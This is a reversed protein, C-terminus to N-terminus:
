GHFYFVWQDLVMLLFLLALYATSYKYLKRAAPKPSEGSQWVRLALLLFYLGLLVSGAFYFLGLERIVSPIITVVFMMISYLIIQRRTELEGWAVPLMPIGARYYDKEVMLMLAWTHPPTWLLIIAFLYLALLSIDNTVAAWGVLPPIAGAVGGVVINQPTARKLLVTYIYAYYIYGVLSLTASLPNVWVALIAMSLVGMGVAYVLAYLPAIRGTPLPRRSTRGMVKDTERDIFSNLASAGAASFAGGLITFFLIDGRPMGRAAIFMSALTTTLLLGVIWPKSLLLYDKWTGVPGDGLSRIKACWDVTQVATVQAVVQDSVGLGIAGVGVHVVLAQVVVLGWVGTAVALHVLNLLAPSGSLVSAGGAVMQIVFLFCTMGAIRAPSGGAQRAQLFVIVLYVGVLLSVVRHAADIWALSTGPLFAYSCFPWAPCSGTAGARVVYNGTLILFLVAVVAGGSLAAVRRLGPARGPQLRFPRAYLEIVVVVTLVAGLLMLAIAFHATAVAQSDLLAALGGVLDQAFLLMVALVAPRAIWPFEVYRLAAITGLALVAATVLLAVIRHAYDLLAAPELPPLLQGDCLPWDPCAAGAGNLRVWGGLVILVFTVGATVRALNRFSSGLPVTQM